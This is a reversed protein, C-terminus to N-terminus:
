VSPTCMFVQRGRQAALSLPSFVRTLVKWCELVFSNSTSLKVYITCEFVVSVLFRQKHICSQIPWTYLSGCQEVAIDVRGVQYEPYKAQNMMNHGLCSWKLLWIFIFLPAKQFFLWYTTVRGFRHIILRHRNKNIKCYKFTKDIFNHGCSFIQCQDLQHLVGMEIKIARYKTVHWITPYNLLAM